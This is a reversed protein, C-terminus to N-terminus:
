TDDAADDGGCGLAHMDVRVLISSLMRDSYLGNATPPPLEGLLFGYLGLVRETLSVLLINWARTPETSPPIAKKSTHPKLFLGVPPVPPPPCSRLNDLSSSSSSKSRSPRNARPIKTFFPIFTPLVTHVAPETGTAPEPPFRKSLSCFALPSATAAAASFTSASPISRSRFAASFASASVNSCSCM